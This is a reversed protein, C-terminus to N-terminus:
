QDMAPPLVLVPLSVEKNRLATAAVAWGRGAFGLVLVRCDFAIIDLMAEATRTGHGGDVTMGQAALGAAIGSAIWPTTKVLLIHCLPDTAMKILVNYVILCPYCRGEIRTV